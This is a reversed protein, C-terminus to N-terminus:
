TRPRLSEGAPPLGPGPADRSGLQLAGEEPARQCRLPLRPLSSPPPIALTLGAQKPGSPEGEVVQDEPGAVRGAEPHGPYCSSRGSLQEQGREEGCRAEPLHARAKRASCRCQPSEKRPSLVPDPGPRFGPPDMIPVQSPPQSPLVWPLKPVRVNM